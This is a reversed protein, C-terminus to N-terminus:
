VGMPRQGPSNNNGSSTNNKNNSIMQITHMHLLLILWRCPLRLRNAVDPRYSSSLHALSQWSGPARSRILLKGWGNQRDSLRKALTLAVTPLALM